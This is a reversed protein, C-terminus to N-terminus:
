LSVLRSLFDISLGATSTGTLVDLTATLLVDDRSSARLSTTSSASATDNGGGVLRGGANGGPKALRPGGGGSGALRGTPTSGDAPVVDFFGDSTDAGIGARLGSVPVPTGGDPCRELMGAPFACTGTGARRGSDVTTTGGGRRSSEAFATGFVAESPSVSAGYMGGLGFTMGAPCGAAVAEFVPGGTMGAREVGGTRGGTGFRDLM